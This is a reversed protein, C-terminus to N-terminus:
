SAVFQTTHVHTGSVTDWNTESRNPCFGTHTNHTHMHTDSHRQLVPETHKYGHAGTGTHKPLHPLSSRHTTTGLTNAYVLTPTRALPNAQHTLSNTHTYTDADKCPLLAHRRARTPQNRPNPSPTPWSGEWPHRAAPQGAGRPGPPPRGSDGPRALSCTCLRAGALRGGAM